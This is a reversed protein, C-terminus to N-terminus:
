TMLNPLCTFTFRQQLRPNDAEAFVRAAGQRKHVLKGTRTRTYIPWKPTQFLGLYTQHMHQQTFIYEVHDYLNAKFADIHDIYALYIRPTSKHTLEIELATTKDPTHILCDPRKHKPTSTIYRESTFDFPMTLTSRILVAHQIHLNHLAHPASTANPTYRYRTPRDSDYRAYQLGKTTLYLLRKKLLPHVAEAFYENEILASFFRTQNHPNIGLGTCLIRRTSYHFETLWATTWQRKDFHRKLTNM